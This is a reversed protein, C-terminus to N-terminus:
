RQLLIKTGSHISEIAKFTATMSVLIEDFGIPAPVGDQIAQLFAQVEAAHGKDGNGKHIKRAQESFITLKQFDEFHAVIGGCYVQIEEKPVLKSGNSFYCVSATSGNAFGLQIVVTDDLLPQSRMAEASVSTIPAGALFMALDIFHCGEGLLRGGGTGPDHVWHDPPVVGANIRYIIARPVDAPLNEKLTQVLPAFRRNFGVMLRGKSRRYAKEIQHLEEEGLCLPKEVFVNKDAKLGALVQRAHDQHRTAIFVTNIRTDEFVQREDGEAREFGYKDAVARAAAPMRDVVSALTGIQAKKLAPLLVNQAFNGAGIFGIVPDAPIYEKSTGGSQKRKKESQKVGQDFDRATDYQLLIGTYPEKKNLILNYAEAAAAFPFVHSILPAADIRGAALLDLYAQMNRQETWRVYGIPYDIGKEEYVPDYRGPGYSSSMRLDLEKRYYHTRSFGTPVAGVIVVVGKKRCLAGALEVPDLSSTGATIIVADTGHGRTAHLIATEM